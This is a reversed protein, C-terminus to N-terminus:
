EDAADSTYLLCTIAQRLQTTAVSTPTGKATMVALAASIEDFKVNAQKAIPLVNFLSGSLEDFTTKGLKVATFMSDAAEKATINERGYTNIVSTIGDVATELSTVGGIAAKSAVKMFELVNEKPVGASIAQYLANTADMLDVGMATALNRTDASMSDMSEKTIGPLLTFVESMKKDFEVIDKIGKVTFATFAATAVAAGAKVVNGIATGFKSLATDSTKIGKKFKSSDLGLKALISFGAM